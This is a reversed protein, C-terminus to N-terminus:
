AILLKASYAGVGLLLYSYLFVLSFFILNGIIIVSGSTNALDPLVERLIRRAALLSAFGCLALYSATSLALRPVDYRQLYISIILVALLFTLRPQVYAIFLIAVVISLGVFHVLSNELIGEVPTLAYSVLSSVLLGCAALRLLLRLWNPKDESPNLTEAQPEASVDPEKVIALNSM